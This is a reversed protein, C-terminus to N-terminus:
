NTRKMYFNGTIPVNAILVNFYYYFKGKVEVENGEITGWYKIGKNYGAKTYDKVFNLESGVVKGKVTFYARAPTSVDRGAGTFEGTSEELTQITLTFLTKVFLLEDYWGSWVSGPKVGGAAQEKTVFKCAPRCTPQECAQTENFVLNMINWTECIKDTCTRSRTLVGHGCTVSCQSWETWQTFPDCRKLPPCHKTESAEGSCKNSESCKRTRTVVGSGGCTVSCKGWSGWESWKASIACIYRGESNEVLKFGEGCAVCILGEDSEAECKAKKDVRGCHRVCLRKWQRPRYCKGDFFILRRRGRGCARCVERRRRIECTGGIGCKRRDRCPWFDRCVGEEENCRTGRRCSPCSSCQGNDLQKGKCGCKGNNCVEGQQCESLCCSQPWLGGFRCECNGHDNCFTYRETCRNNCRDPGATPKTGEPEPGETSKEPQEFECAPYMLNHNSKCTCMGHFCQGEDNQHPCDGRRNTYCIAKKNCDRNRNCYKMVHQLPDEDQALDEDQASSREFLSLMLLAGQLIVATRM